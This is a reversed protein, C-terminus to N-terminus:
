ITKGNEYIVLTLEEPRLSSGEDEWIVLIHGNANEIDDGISEVGELEDKIEEDKVEEQQITNLYQLLNSMKNFENDASNTALDKAQEAQKILGNDGVAMNITVTALIIIIIITIVLVILTIGRDDFNKNLNFYNKNRKNKM